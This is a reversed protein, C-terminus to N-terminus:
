TKLEKNWKLDKEIKIEQLNKLDKICLEYYRNINSVTMKKCIPIGFLRDKTFRAFHNSLNIESTKLVEKKNRQQPTKSELQHHSGDMLNMNDTPMRNSQPKEM